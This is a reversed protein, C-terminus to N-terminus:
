ACITSSYRQAYKENGRKARGLWWPALNEIRHIRWAVTFIEFRMNSPVLLGAFCQGEDLDDLTIEDRTKMVSPGHGVIPGYNPEGVEILHSIVLKPM